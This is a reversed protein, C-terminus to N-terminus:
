PRRANGVPFPGGPGDRVGGVLRMLRCSNRFVGGSQGGAWGRHAHCLVPNPVTLRSFTTCSETSSGPRTLM